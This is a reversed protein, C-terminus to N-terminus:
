LGLMNAIADIEMETKKDDSLLKNLQAEMSKLPKRKGECAGKGCVRQRSESQNEYPRRLLEYPMNIILLYNLALFMMM